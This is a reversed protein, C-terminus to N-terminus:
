AASIESHSGHLTKKVEKTYHRGLPIGYVEAWKCLAPISVNNAKAYKAVTTHTNQKQFGELLAIREEEQFPKKHNTHHWGLPIGYRRSWRALAGNNVNNVKAYETITTYTNQKQFGELLAIREEEQFVKTHHFGLPIGYRRSWSGLVNKKVNNAKEYKAVTTHTSQKQFGELLAIREEESFAKRHNRHHLGLPIGYRRSWSGLVGKKVNNAKEYKAITTHTKQKQFGELLAIRQEKKLIKLAYSCTYKNKKM